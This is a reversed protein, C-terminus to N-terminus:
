KMHDIKVKNERKYPNELQPQSNWLKKFEYETALIKKYDNSPQKWIYNTESNM